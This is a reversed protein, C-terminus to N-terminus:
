KPESSDAPPAFPQVATMDGVAWVLGDGGIIWFISFGRLADVSAVRHTAPAPQIALAGARRDGRVQGSDDHRFAQAPTVATDGAVGLAGDGMDRAQSASISEPNAVRLSMEFERQLQFYLHLNAAYPEHM